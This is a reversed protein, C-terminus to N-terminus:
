QTTSHYEHALLPNWMMGTAVQAFDAGANFFDEFHEPRTIGGVGILTLDYKNADNLARITELARPRIPGGCVGSEPRDPALNVRMKITNIASVGQVGARALALLLPAPDDTAGIKIILPVSGLTQVLAKAVQNAMEPDQYLAGDASKVNPCSFNAEVIRAGCELAFRAAKCFDEEMNPPTGVISVVLAQGDSLSNAARPIDERLYDLPQTPNGFSNTIAM